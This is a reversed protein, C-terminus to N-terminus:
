EWSFVHNESLSLTAWNQLTYYLVPPGQMNNTVKKLDVFYALLIFLYMQLKGLLVLIWHWYTNSNLIVYYSFYCGLLFQFNRKKSLKLWLQWNKLRSLTLAHNKPFQLCHSNYIDHCNVKRVAQNSNEVQFRFFFITPEFLRSIYGM